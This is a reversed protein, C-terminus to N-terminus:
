TRRYVRLYSGAAIVDQSEVSIITLNTQASSNQLNFTEVRGSGYALRGHITVIGDPTINAEGSLFVYESPNLVALVAGNSSTGAPASDGPGFGVKYVNYNTQTKDTNIFLNIEAPATLTSPAIVLGEIVYTRDSNLDLDSVTLYSTDTQAEAIGALNYESYAELVGVATFLLNGNSSKVVVSDGGQLVIKSIEVPPYSSDSVIAGNIVYDNVQPITGNKVIAVYASDVNPSTNSILLNVVAVRGSPCTFLVEETNASPKVKELVNGALAM